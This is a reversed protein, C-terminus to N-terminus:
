KYKSYNAKYNIIKLFFFFQPMDILLTSQEENAM